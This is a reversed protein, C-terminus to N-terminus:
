TSISPTKGYVFRMANLYTQLMLKDDPFFKTEYHLFNRDKRIQVSGDGALFGCLISKKHLGEFSNNIHERERALTREWRKFAVKKNRASFNM